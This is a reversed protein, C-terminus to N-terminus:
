EWLLKIVEPMLTNWARSLRAPLTNEVTTGNKSVIRIGLRLGPDTRLEIGKQQAWDRLKEKDDPPVMLTEAAEAVGMAEEALARVLKHYGPQSSTEELALGVKQRLLDIVEGEAQVRANAISLDAASHAQHTTARAEAEIKKQHAAVRVAALSEAESIIKAAKTDAEALLAEIEAEVEAQLLEELKPM